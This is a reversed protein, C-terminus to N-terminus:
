KWKNVYRMKLFLRVLPYLWGSSYILQGEPWRFFKKIHTLVYLINNKNLLIENAEGSGTCRFSEIAMLFDRRPMYCFTSFIRQATQITTLPFLTNCNGVTYYNAYKLCVKLNTEFVEQKFDENIFDNEFVPEVKSGNLRYEVTRKQNTIAFFQEYLPQSARHYHPTNIVNEQYNAALYPEFSTIRCWTVEFYYSFVSPYNNRTLIKNIARQCRRSGVVDVIACNGKTLGEQEFYKVICNNQEQYKTTLSEIFSHDKFLANVIQEGKLDSLYLKSYDYSPLHLEYLIGEIGKEQLHPMEKMICEPSLEDLGAMYLAQRSAYLYSLKIDPFFKAMELAIRYLIYGDRAIFFLHNIGRSHSDCLINYVFPVFMPAIFTSAFLARATSPSSLRVARSLAFAYGQNPITGDTMMRKGMLEYVNYSHCVRKTRINRHRPVIVDATKDDGIHMWYKKKIHYKDAIFDYLHGSRKTKKVDSSVYINQCVYFGRERMLKEIFNLPLYMDSIYIVTLGQNVLKNIKARIKEVPVLVMDEIEM